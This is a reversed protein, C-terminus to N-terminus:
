PKTSFPWYINHLLPNKFTFLLLLIQSHFLISFRFFQTTKGLNHVIVRSCYEPQKHTIQPQKIPQLNQLKSNLLKLHSLNILPYQIELQQFKLFLSPSFIFADCRLFTTYVEYSRFILYNLRRRKFLFDNAKYLYFVLVQVQHSSFKILTSSKPSKGSFGLIFLQFFFVLIPWHVILIACGQFGYVFKGSKLVEIACTLISNHTDM